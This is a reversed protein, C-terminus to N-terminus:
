FNNDVPQSGKCAAEVCLWISCLNMQWITEFALYVVLVHLFASSIRIQYSYRFVLKSQEPVLMAWVDFDPSVM